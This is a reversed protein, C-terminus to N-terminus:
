ELLLDSCTTKHVKNTSNEMPKSNSSRCGKIYHSLMPAEKDM